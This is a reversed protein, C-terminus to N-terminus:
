AARRLAARAAHYGCLGHVGGGPPTASSCLYLGDGLRYPRTKGVQLIKRLDFKGGGLDGGILNANYTEYEASNRTSRGLILDRFGPAFREIQSEIPGTMDVKSGTPVHCYGWATHKGDPARTADFLSQQALLVFPRQPHAGEAVMREAAAVEDFHGGVHVTGAQGSLPDAWPIPGDLAWDVKFVGPGPRWLGLRYRRVPDIRAGGIQLADPPMVDLMVLPSDLEELAAVRRGTEIKGGMETLQAVLADAISMSGGGAVPWGYAHGIAAFITAVASTAPRNLPAISHAALGAILGKAEASDFRAALISAPLVALAAARAFTAPHRPILTIPSLLDEIVAEVNEVMPEILARYRPGDSGLQAATDDISRFLGAARGEGLPHAVAVPPQLWAVDLGIEKFFPSAIGSPHIASCVDHRFGPLTLESTRTGGGIEDAAEVVLVKRGNRALEVAAALGNPGSGVVAGDFESM